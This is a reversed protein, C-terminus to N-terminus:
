LSGPRGETVLVKQVEERPVGRSVWPGSVKEQPCLTPRLWVSVHFLQPLLPETVCATGSCVTTPLADHGLVDTGALPSLPLDTLAPSLPWSSSSVGLNQISVGWLAKARSRWPQRLRQPERGLLGLVSRYPWMRDRRQKSGEASGDLGRQGVCSM